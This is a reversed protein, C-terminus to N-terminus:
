NIGEVTPGSCGAIEFSECLHLSGGLAGAMTFVLALAPVLLFAFVFVLSVFMFVRARECECAGVGVACCALM